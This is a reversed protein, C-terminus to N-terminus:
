SSGCSTMLFKPESVLLGCGNKGVRKPCWLFDDLVLGGSQWVVVDEDVLGGFFPFNGNNFHGLAFLAVFRYTPAEGGFLVDLADFSSGNPLAALDEDRPIGGGCGAKRVKRIVNGIYCWVGGEDVGGGFELGEDGVAGVEDDEGWAGAFAEGEEVGEVGAGEAESALGGVEERLEREQM